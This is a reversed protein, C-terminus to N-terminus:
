FWIESNEVSENLRISGFKDLYINSIKALYNPAIFFCAVIAIMIIPFLGISTIPMKNATALGIISAAIIVILPIKFTSLITKFTKGILGFGTKTIFSFTEFFGLGRYKEDALIFNSYAFILSIITYVIIFPIFGVLYRTVNEDNISKNVGGVTVVLFLMYIAFTILGIFINMLFVKLNITKINSFYDGYSGMRNKILGACIIYNIIWSIFTPFIEYDGAHVGMKEMIANFIISLVGGTLLWLIVSSYKYDRM